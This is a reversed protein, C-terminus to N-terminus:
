LQVSVSSKMYFLWLTMILNSVNNTKIKKDSLAVHYLLPWYKDVSRIHPGFLFLRIRTRDKLRIYKSALAVHKIKLQELEDHTDIDISRKELFRNSIQFRFWSKRNSKELQSILLEKEDKLENNEVTLENIREETRALEDKVKNGASRMLDISLELTENKEISNALESKLESTQTTNLM